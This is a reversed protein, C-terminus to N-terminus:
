HLLDFSFIHESGEDAKDTTFAYNIALLHKGIKFLYGTGATMRGDSFGARLAFEPRLFYEAGAHFEPTQELNKLLDSALLLKRELFRASVGIGIELPVKDEIERDLNRNATHESNYDGNHWKYRKSINKMTLGIKIDRVPMQDRKSRDVLQDVYLIAGFDFGVSFATMDAMASHLYCINTGLALYREFRKAFVIAFQHNAQNIDWGLPYGDSDRAEVSGSGAYLWHVGLASQGQIPFAITAYGLVRDLQMVRYSTGFLPRQLNALGAPNFLPAAGDDSVALYAGGMATPRAGAPVQLFAGAYGGDAEAAHVSLCGAAILFLTVLVIKRM